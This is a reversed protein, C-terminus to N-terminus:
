RVLSINGKKKIKEGTILTADLYYVFVATNMVEGKYIGDWCKKPDTTDFVKEGWRDYIAFTMTQICKGFVCELDNEGDNNPSFANPVFVEGCQLDVTVTM